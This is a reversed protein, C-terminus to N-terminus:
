RLRRARRFRNSRVRRPTARSRIELLQALPHFSAPLTLRELSPSADSRRTEGVLWVYSWRLWIMRR